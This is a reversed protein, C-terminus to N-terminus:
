KHAPKQKRLYDNLRQVNRSKTKTIGEIFIGKPNLYLISDNPINYEKNSNKNVIKM